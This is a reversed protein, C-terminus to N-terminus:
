KALDGGSFVAYDFVAPPGPETRILEIRRTEASTGTTQSDSAEARIQQARIGTFTINNFLPTVRIMDGAQYTSASPLGFHTVINLALTPSSLEVGLTNTQCTPTARASFFSNHYSNSGRYLTVLLGVCNGSTPDDWSLTTSTSNVTPKITLTEGQRVTVSANELYRGTVTVNANNISSTVPIETDSATNFTDSLNSTDLVYLAQEVGSEAANFVRTTDEEQTSLFSQEASRGAFALAIMLLIAAMLLTAPLAGAGEAKFQHRRTRVFM